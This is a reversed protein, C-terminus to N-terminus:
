HLRLGGHLIDEAGKVNPHPVACLQLAEEFGAAAVTDGDLEHAAGSQVHMEEAGVGGAVPIAVADHGREGGAQGVLLDGVKRGENAPQSFICAVSFIPGANQPPLDEGAGEFPPHAVAGVVLLLPVSLSGPLQFVAQLNHIEAM